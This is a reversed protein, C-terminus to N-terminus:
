HLPSLICIDQTGLVKQYTDHVNLRYVFFENTWRRSVPYYDLGHSGTYVIVM